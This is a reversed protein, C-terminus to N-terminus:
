FRVCFTYFFSITLTFRSKKLFILERNQLLLAQSPAILQFFPLVDLHHLPLSLGLQSVDSAFKLLQM